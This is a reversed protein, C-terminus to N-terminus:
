VCFLRLLVSKVCDLCVIAFHLLHHFHLYIYFHAIWFSEAPSATHLFQVSFKKSQTQLTFGTSKLFSLALRKYALEYNM